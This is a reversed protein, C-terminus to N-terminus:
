DGQKVRYFNGSRKTYLDMRKLASLRGISACMKTSIGGSLVLPVDDLTPGVALATKFDPYCIGIEVHSLRAVVSVYEEVDKFSHKVGWGDTYSFVNLFIFGRPKSRLAALAKRLEHETKVNFVEEVKVQQGLIRTREQEIWRDGQLVYVPGDILKDDITFQTLVPIYKTQGVDYKQGLLVVNEAGRQQLFKHVTHAIDDQRPHRNLLLAERAGLGEIFANGYLDTISKTQVVYDAGLVSASYLYIIACVLKLIKPM